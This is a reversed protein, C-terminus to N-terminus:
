RSHPRDIREASWWPVQWLSVDRQSILCDGPELCAREAGSDSAMLIALPPRTTAATEAIQQLLSVCPASHRASLSGRQLRPFCGVAAGTQLLTCGQRTFQDPCHWPIEAMDSLQDLKVHRRSTAHLGYIGAIDSVISPADSLFWNRVLNAIWVPTCLPLDVM